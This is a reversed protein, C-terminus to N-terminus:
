PFSIMDCVHGGNFICYKMFKSLIIPEPFSLARGIFLFMWMTIEISNDIVGWPEDRM